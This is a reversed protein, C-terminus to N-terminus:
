NWNNEKMIKDFERSDHEVQRVFGPRARENCTQSYLHHVYSSSVHVLNRMLDKTIRNVLWNDNFWIIVRSDIEGIRELRKNTSMFCAGFLPFGGNNHRTKGKPFDSPVAHATHYPSAIYAKTDNTLKLMLGEEWSKTILVDNNMITVFYGKAMKVGKNWAKTVGSPEEFRHFRISIDFEDNLEAVLSKIDEVSCDDLIIIETLIKTNKIILEVCKRTMERHNLVPIIISHTAKYSIKKVTGGEVM